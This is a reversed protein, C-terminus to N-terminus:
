QHSLGKPKIQGDKCIVGTGRFGGGSVAQHQRLPLLRIAVRDTYKSCRRTPVISISLFPGPKVYSGPQTPNFPANGIEIVIGNPDPAFQKRCKGRGHAAFGAELSRAVPFARVFKEPHARPHHLRDERRLQRRCRPPAKLQDAQSFRKAKLQCGISFGFSRSLSM